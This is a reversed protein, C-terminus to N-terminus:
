GSLECSVDPGLCNMQEQGTMATTTVRQLFELSQLVINSASNSNESSMLKQATTSVTELVSNFIMLASATQEHTSSNENSCFQTPTSIAKEQLESSKIRTATSTSPAPTFMQEADYIESVSASSEQQGYSNEITENLENNIENTTRLINDTNNTPLGKSICKSYNVANADFPYLGCCRFGNVITEKKFAKRMAEPLITGFNETSIKTAGVIEVTNTWASKLPRFIAVDAPQLIHTANPFLAVLIIKNKLCEEAAEYAMHSSHGDVFFIVPLEIKHKFLFPVFIKKVYLLFNRTDMWGNPSSGLGWEPPYNQITSRKMRKLPLIVDPPLVNGDASFAFLVTINEKSRGRLVFNVNKNGKSAIVKKPVPSLVFSTEDANFIRSPNNLVATLGHEELYGYVKSFWERINNESVRSSAQSVAEPIRESLEPHRKMFSEYWKRGPIGNRFPTERKNEKIFSKIRMLLGPKTIPFGKREMQQIHHVIKAEEENSLVTPKGKRPDGKFKSGLRFQLTARPIGYTKAAQRKSLTKAKIQDLARAM